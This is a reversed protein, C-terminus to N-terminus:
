KKTGRTTSSSDSKSSNSKNGLEGSKRPLASGFSSFNRDGKQKKSPSLFTLVKDWIAM